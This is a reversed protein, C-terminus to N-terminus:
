GSSLLEALKRRVWLQQWFLQAKPVVLRLPGVLLVVSFMRMRHASFLGLQKIVLLLM